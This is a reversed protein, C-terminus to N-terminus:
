STLVGKIERVCRDLNSQLEYVWFRKVHWGRTTLHTDRKLDAHVRSGDLNQHYYECDIEIDIM